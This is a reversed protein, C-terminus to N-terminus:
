EAWPDGSALDAEFDLWEQVEEMADAMIEFQEMSWFEMKNERRTQDTKRGKITGNYCKRGPFPSCIIFLQSNAKFLKAFSQGYVKKIKDLCKARRPM